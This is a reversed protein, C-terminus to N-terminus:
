NQFNFHFIPASSTLLLVALLSPLALIVILDTLLTIYLFCLDYNDNYSFYQNRSLSSWRSIIMNTRFFCYTTNSIKRYNIVDPFSTMMLASLGTLLDTFIKNRQSYLCMSTNWASQIIISTFPLIIDSPSWLGARFDECGWGILKTINYL